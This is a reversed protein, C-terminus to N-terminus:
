HVIAAACVASFWPSSHPKVEYKRHAIDLDIRVQVWECFEHAAASTRLNFMNNWADRLHDRLCILLLITMLLPIFCTIRNHIHYFDISVSVVVPNSNELLPFVMTSCISPDSSLFLDLLAPSQSDCDQIRTPFNIMQTM